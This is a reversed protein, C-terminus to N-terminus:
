GPKIIDVKKDTLPNGTDALTGKVRNPVLFAGSIAMAASQLVVTAGAAYPCAASTGGFGNPTDWYGGGLKTTTAWNSPVLLSLFSASNSYTAVQDADAPDGDV